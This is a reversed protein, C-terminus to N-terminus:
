QNELNYNLTELLPPALKYHTFTLNQCFYIQFKETKLLSHKGSKRQNPSAFKRYIM